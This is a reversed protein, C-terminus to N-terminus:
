VDEIGPFAFAGAIRRQWWPVLRTEVVSRGWYAHIIRGPVSVIACHRAPAGLAMRFLLVDGPMAAGIAIEVLYTRAADGLTDAGTREAWDTTYAPVAAPEPGCTERWVGRLLGLCDTGEGRVSARHRYPTGIWGRAADVIEDRTM